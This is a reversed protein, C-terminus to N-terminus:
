MLAAFKYIWVATEPMVTAKQLTSHMDQKKKKKSTAKMAQAPQPRQQHFTVLVFAPIVRSETMGGDGESSDPRTRHLKYDSFTQSSFKFFQRASTLSKM